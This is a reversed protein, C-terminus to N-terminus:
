QRHFGQYFGEKFASWHTIVEGIIYVSIGVALAVGIRRAYATWSIGVDRPKSFLLLTLCVSVGVAVTTTMALAVGIAIAPGFDIDRSIVFKRFLTKMQPYM